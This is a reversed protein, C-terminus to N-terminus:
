ISGEKTLYNRVEDDAIKGGFMYFVGKDKVAFSAFPNKPNKNTEAFTFETYKKNGFLNFQAAKFRRIPKKKDEVIAIDDISKPKSAEKPPIIEHLTGVYPHGVVQLLGTSSFSTVIVTSAIAAQGIIPLIGSEVTM